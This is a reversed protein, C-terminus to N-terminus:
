PVQVVVENSPGSLGSYNGARVRAYYRGPLVGSAGISTQLGMDLGTVIDSLGPASGVDLVYRLTQGAAPDDAWSLVVTTGQVMAALNAPAAPTPVRRLTAYAVDGPITAQYPIQLSASDIVWFGFGGTRTAIAYIRPREPDFVWSTILGPNSWPVPQSRKLALTVGDYVHIGNGTVFVDATRPDVHIGSITHPEEGPIAARALEAGSAVSRRRLQAADLDYVDHGNANLVPAQWYSIGLEAVVGGHDLDVVIYASGSFCQYVARAGDASLAIVSGYSCGALRRQGGPGLILPGVSDSSVIETRRPHPAFVPIDKGRPLHVTDGSVLDHVTLFWLLFPEPFNNQPEGTAALLFRGDSTASGGAWKSDEARVAQISVVRPGDPEVRALYNGGSRQQVFVDLTTQAHGAAPLVVLAVLAAVARCPDGRLIRAM